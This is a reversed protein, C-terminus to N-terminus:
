ALQARLAAELVLGGDLGMSPLAGALELSVVGHLQTWVLVGLLLVGPALGAPTGRTRAWRTLQQELRGSPRAAGGAPALEGLLGLLLVMGEHIVDVAEESDAPVDAIPRHDFLMAYRRPHALAWDRYAALVDHLRREPGRRAGAQAAAAMAEGLQAYGETVLAGLLEDRSAYYRYLAPGSMGMAKGIANLSLAAPGGEDVQRFAEARIEALTQARVRERRSLPARDAMDGDYSM